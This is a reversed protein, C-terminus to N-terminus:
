CSISSTGSVAMLNSDALHMIFIFIELYLITYTVNNDSM